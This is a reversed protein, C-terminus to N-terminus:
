DVDALRERCMEMVSEIISCHTPQFDDSKVSYDKEGSKMYEGVKVNKENSDIIGTFYFNIFDKTLITFIKLFSMRYLDHM